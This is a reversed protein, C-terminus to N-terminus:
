QNEGLRHALETFISAPIAARLAKSLRNKKQAQQLCPAKRCIYASRGMGQDLQVLPQDNGATSTTVSNAVVAPHDVRVVRWFEARDAM